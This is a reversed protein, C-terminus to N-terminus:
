SVSRVLGTEDMCTCADTGSTLEIVVTTHLINKVSHLTVQFLFVVPLKYKWFLASKFIHKHQSEPFVDYRRREVFPVRIDSRPVLEPLTQTGRTRSSYWTFRYATFFCLPLMNFMNKSFLSEDTTENTPENTTEDTPENVCVSMRENARRSM